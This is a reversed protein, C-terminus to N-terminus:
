SGAPAGGAAMKVRMALAKARRGVALNEAEISGGSVIVGSNLITTKREKLDSTDINREDLFDIITDLLTRELLKSYMEKDLKQFYRRYTNDAATERISTVAGYNFARNEAIRRRIERRHIWLAWPHLVRHLVFLPSLVFLFPTQVASESLLTMWQRLSPKPNLEDAQCFRERVPTLLFNSTEVFLREAVKSFRLFVSLVLEGSWDVVRVCKYHRVTHTPNVVFEKVVTPDVWPAPRGFPNPLFRPDDRVDQGNICLKDHLEVRELGLSGVAAAVEDYLDEVAVPKPRLTRDLDEKGKQLDVVFSWGGIDLGSGPFPSFGGATIVTGERAIAVRSLAAAVEENTPTAVAGPDFRARSLRRAVIGYSTGWREVVVVIWAVVVFPLAVTPDQANVAFLLVLIALGSLVIDRITKRRRAILCHKLVPQPDVGPTAAIASHRDEVLQTIVHDRFTSDLYAAACLRRTSDTRSPDM